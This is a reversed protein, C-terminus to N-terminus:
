ASERPEATRSQPPVKKAQGRSKAAPRWARLDEYTFGHLACEADLFERFQVAVIAGDFEADPENHWQELWPLLELLGALM